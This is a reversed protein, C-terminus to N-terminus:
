IISSFRKITLLIFIWLMCLRLIAGSSPLEHLISFWKGGNHEKGNDNRETQIVFHWSTLQFAPPPHTWRVTCLFIVIFTHTLPLTIIIFRRRIVRCFLHHDVDVKRGGKRGGRPSSAPKDIFGRNGNLPRERNVWWVAWGACSSESSKMEVIFTYCDM